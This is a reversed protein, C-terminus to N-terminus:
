LHQPRLGKTINKSRLGRLRQLEQLRRQYAEEKTAISIDTSAPMVGDFGYALSRSHQEFKDFALPKTLVDAVNNDTGIHRLSITGNEVHEHIFNLTVTMHASRRSLEFNKSLSIAATNDVM